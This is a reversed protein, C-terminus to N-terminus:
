LALGLTGPLSKIRPSIEAPTVEIKEEAVPGDVVTGLLNVVLRRNGRTLAETILETPFRKLRQEHSLVPDSFARVRDDMDKLEPHMNYYTEYEQTGPKLLGRYTMGDRQDYLKM